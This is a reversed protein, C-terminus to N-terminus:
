RGHIPRVPWLVEVAVRGHWRGRAPVQLQWFSHHGREARCLPVTVHSIVNRREPHEHAVPVELHGRGVPRGGHHDVAVFAASRGETASHALLLDLVGEDADALFLDDILRAAAGRRRHKRPYLKAPFRRSPARARKCTDRRM